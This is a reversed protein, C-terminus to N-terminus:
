PHLLVTVVANTRRDVEQAFLAVRNEKDLARWYSNAIDELSGEMPMLYPEGSFSPIPNGDGAYTHICHGIAAISAEFHYFCRVCHEAQGDQSKLISLTYSGTESSSDFFGSIRPTFNPPDPEFTRSCLAEDFAAGAQMMTHVTDTQDGNTVMHVTNFSRYPWYIILSPDTLKAPDKAETRIGEAEKVFIRNRSNESRGMLWYVMLMKENNESAGFIIGRGPYRNNKLKQLNEEAIKRFM